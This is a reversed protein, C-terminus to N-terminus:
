NNWQQRLPDTYFADPLALKACRGKYTLIAAGAPEGPFLQLNGGLTCAGGAVCSDFGDRALDDHACGASLSAVLLTALLRGFHCPLGSGVVEREM